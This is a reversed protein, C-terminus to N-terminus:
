EVFLFLFALVNMAFYLNPLVRIFQCLVVPLSGELLVLIGLVQIHFALFPLLRLLFVEVVLLLLVM